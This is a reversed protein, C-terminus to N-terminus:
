IVSGMWTGAELVYRETGEPRIKWHQRVLRDLFVRDHSVLLLAADCEALATEVHRVSPLDMHNTPEDMIIFEPAKQLGEALILKRIEGPSPLGTELLRVPDSGLRSILSMIRGKSEGDLNHMRQLLTQTEHLGIEQPILILRDKQVPIRETLFSILTSKGCGNPGTLGIREGSQISLDPFVLRRNGLDLVAGPVHFLTQGSKRAQKPIRVGAPSAKKYRFSQKEKEMREMQKELRKQIRGETADKGTLRALDMKSKADHDRSSLQRKSRKVDAQAAKHKRKQVQKQLKKIKRGAAEFHHIQFAKENDLDRTVTSYNGKRFIMDPPYMFLIHSCLGDLLERDHSVLLGFGRYQKLAHFLFQRAGYDLHNSPEDVALLGPNLALANGMQMRKREGHSLSDWRAPWDPEIHLQARLRMAEPDTSRMFRDLHDPMFDTRQECYVARTCAQVTGSDPSLLGTLLRLLTTKGCGNAGAIGTWGTEFQCSFDRILPEISQEYSFTLHQVTFFSRSM